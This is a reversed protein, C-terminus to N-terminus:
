VEAATEPPGPHRRRQHRVYHDHSTRPEAPWAGEKDAPELEPLLSPSLPLGRTSGEARGAGEM